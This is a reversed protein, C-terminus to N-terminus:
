RLGSRKLPKVPEALVDERNIYLFYLGVFPICIAHGWNAEGNYPNTKDWLWRLVAWYVAVFLPTLIAIKVWGETSVGLHNPEDYSYSTRPAAGVSSAPPM